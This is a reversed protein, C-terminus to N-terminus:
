INEIKGRLKNVLAPILRYGVVGLTVGLGLGVLFITM